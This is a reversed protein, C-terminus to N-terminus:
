LCPLLRWNLMPHSGPLNRASPHCFSLLGARQERPAENPALTPRLVGRIPRAWPWLPPPPLEAGSRLSSRPYCPAQHPLHTAGPSSDRSASWHFLSGTFQSERGGGWVEAGSCFTSGTPRPGTIYGRQAETGHRCFSSLPIPTIIRFVSTPVCYVSSLHSNINNNNNINNNFGQFCYGAM